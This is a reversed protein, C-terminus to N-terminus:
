IKPACHAGRNTAVPAGAAAGAGESLKGRALKLASADSGRSPRRTSQLEIKQM